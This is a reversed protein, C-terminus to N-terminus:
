FAKFADAMPGQPRGFAIGLDNVGEFVIVTAVGPVSLVDRDFRALASQGFGDSLVQNGSIGMNVVGWGGSPEPNLRNALVDPGRRNAHVTSGIGDSISDGLVVVARGREGAEVDVGSLFPRVQLTQKPTFAKDTFDGADSVFANQMGTGHCTCQGTAQPLYI